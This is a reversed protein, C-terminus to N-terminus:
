VLLILLLTVLLLLLQLLPLLLTIKISTILTSAVTITIIQKNTLSVSAMQSGSCDERCLDPSLYVSSRPM